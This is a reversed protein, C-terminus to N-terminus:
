FLDISGAGIGSQSVPGRRRGPVDPRRQSGADDDLRRALIRLESLAHEVLQTAMDQFQMATTAGLLQARLAGSQRAVSAGAPHRSLEGVLRDFESFRDMLDGGAQELLQLLRELDSVAALVRGRDAQGAGSPLDGAATLGRGATAPKGARDDSHMSM